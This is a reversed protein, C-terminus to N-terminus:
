SKVEKKEEYGGTERIEEYYSAIFSLCSPYKKGREFIPNPCHIDKLDEVIEMYTAGNKFARYILHQVALLFAPICGGVKGFGYIFCKEHGRAGYGQCLYLNGCPTELKATDSLCTDFVKNMRELLEQESEM